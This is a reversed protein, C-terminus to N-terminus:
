AGHQASAIRKTGYYQKCARLELEKFTLGKMDYKTIPRVVIFLINSIMQMRTLNLGDVVETQQDENESM